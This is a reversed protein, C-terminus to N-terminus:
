VDVASGSLLLPVRSDGFEKVFQAELEADYEAFPPYSPQGPHRPKAKSCTRPYSHRLHATEILELARRLGPAQRAEISRYLPDHAFIWTEAYLITIDIRSLSSPQEVVLGRDTDVNNKDAEGRTM